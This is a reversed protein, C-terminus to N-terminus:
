SGKCKVRRRVGMRAYSGSARLIRGGEGHFGKENGCEEAECSNGGLGNRDERDGGKLIIPGEIHKHIAWDSVTIQVPFPDAVTGASAATQKRSPVWASEKITKLIALVRNGHRPLGADGEGEEGRDAIARGNRVGGEQTWNRIGASRNCKESKAQSTHQTKV